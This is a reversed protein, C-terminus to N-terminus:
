LSADAQDRCAIYIDIAQRYKAYAQEWKAYAQNLNAYAQKLNAEAQAEASKEKSCLNAKGYTSFSFLFLALLFYKM